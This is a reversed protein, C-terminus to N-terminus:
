LYSLVEIGAGLHQKVPSSEVIRPISGGLMIILVSVKPLPQIQFAGILRALYPANIVIVELDNM